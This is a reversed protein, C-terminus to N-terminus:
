ACKGFSKPCTNPKSVLRYLTHLTFLSCWTSALTAHCPMQASTSGSATGSNQWQAERFLTLKCQFKGNYQCFLQKASTKTHAVRAWWKKTKETERKQRIKRHIKRKKIKHRLFYKTEINQKTHDPQYPTNRRMTYVIWKDIIYIFYSSVGTTAKRWHTQSKLKQLAKKRLFRHYLHPLDDCAFCVWHHTQTYKHM